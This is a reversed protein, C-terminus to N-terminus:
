TKDGDNEGIYKKVKKKVVTIIKTSPTEEPFIKLLNECISIFECGCFIWLIIAVSIQIPPTSFLIVFIALVLIAVLKRLLGAQAIRSSIRRKKGAAIIGTVVDIAILLLMLLWLQSYNLLSIAWGAFAAGCAAELPHRLIVGLFPIYKFM